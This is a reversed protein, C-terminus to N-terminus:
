PQPEKPPNKKQQRILRNKWWAVVRDRLAKQQDFESDLSHNERNEPSEFFVNVADRRGSEPNDGADWIPVRPPGLEQFTYSGEQPLSQIEPHSLPLRRSLTEVLRRGHEVLYDRNFRQGAPIRIWGDLRGEAPTKMLILVNSHAWPKEPDEILVTHLPLRELEPHVRALLRYRVWCWSPEILGKPYLHEALKPSLFHTEGGTLTWLFGASRVLGSFEGKLELGSVEKRSLFAVDLVETRDSVTVGKQRLWDLNSALGQRSAFKVGFNATLPLPRGGALALASPRYRTAGLQQAFGQLWHGPFDREFATEDGYREGKSLAELWAPPLGLKEAHFRTLPGKFEIPGEPLWFTWGTEVTEVPDDHNLRELFSESFRELRAVGFPGEGDEVPWVGLRSTVDLLLVRLRERQLEAALWHGRGFASVIVADYQNPDQNPNVEM